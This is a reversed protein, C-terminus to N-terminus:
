EEIEEKYANKYGDKVISIKVLEDNLRNIQCILQKRDEWLKKNEEKLSIIKEILVEKEINNM